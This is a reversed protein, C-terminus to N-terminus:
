TFRLLSRRAASAGLGRREEEEKLEVSFAKAIM